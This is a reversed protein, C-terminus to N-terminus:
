VEVEFVFKVIAGGVVVASGVLPLGVQSALSYPVLAQNQPRLTQPYFYWTSTIGLWAMTWLFGLTKQWVPVSAKENTKKKGSLNTLYKWLTRISDEIVLGLPAMSFFLMAGSEEAPIGQVIDLIVHLAGSFFFIIFVNMYKEALSKPPVGLLDRTIFTSVSTLPQRLLQHWFKSRSKRLLIDM